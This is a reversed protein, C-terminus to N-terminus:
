AVTLTGTMFPHIACIYSYTGPRTPATFTGTANGPINGTDFSHDTASLTHNASDQNVITVTAGPAVTVDVPSFMFDRIMVNVTQTAGNSGTLPVASPGAMASPTASSLNPTTVPPASPTPTGCGAVVLLAMLALVGPLSRTTPKPTAVRM